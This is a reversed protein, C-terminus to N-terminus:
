AETEPNHKSFLAKCLYLDTDKMGNKAFRGMFNITEEGNACTVGEDAPTCVGKQALLAGEMAIGAASALKLACGYRAGDCVVGFVNLITNNIANHVEELGGGLLLVTGAAVGCSAVVACACMASHRGIRNKGFCTVFYCLALARLLEEESKGLDEALSLLTVAGTIGANGSTACSMTPMDLGGMRAESGAAAMAKARRVMDGGSNDMLMRGLGIGTKGSLAMDALAKNMSLAERLWYLEEIDIQTAYSFFDALGYESIPDHSEDLGAQRDFHQDALVTGNAEKYVLNHHKKAVTAKGVGNETTVEVSIYIGLIDTEWDPLIEIDGQEAFARAQAEQEPTIGKLVELKAAPDGAWAGLSAAMRLGKVATGPIGVDDNKSCIDKDARVVIKKPTGGVADRAEAAVYSVAIPGTCGFAPLVDTKLLENLRRLQEKEM